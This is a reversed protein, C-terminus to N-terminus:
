TCQLTCQKSIQISSTGLLKCKCGYLNITYVTACDPIKDIKTQLTLCGNLLRVKETKIKNCGCLLEYTVISCDYNLTMIQYVIIIDCNDNKIFVKIDATPSVITINVFCNVVIDGMETTGEVTINYMGSQLVSITQSNSIHGDPFTWTYSNAAFGMSIASLLATESSSISIEIPIDSCSFEFLNNGTTSNGCRHTILEQITLGFSM